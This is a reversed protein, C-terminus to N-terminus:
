ASAHKNGNGYIDLFVDVLSPDFQSGACRRLEAVIDEANKGKRYPRDASMADTTDAITIIRALLPISEGKLGEPYGSGDFHEHHYKIPPLIDMLQRIPSLIETGKAPHMKILEKEEDTLKGPKDLIAEYTGIKGIDHLLGALELNRMERMTLKLARGIDLSFKTVRESHGATWPSKADIANSLSKVTGVLLAELDSLLRANSLAVSIQAALKEIISFHERAYASPRKSGVTLVGVVEGKVNLPIRIHSLFGDQLLKREFPLMPRAENLNSVYQPRLTRAVESASTEGFPIYTSKDAFSIGFGTAYIFGKQHDDLLKVTARDCPVARGLMRVAIELIEDSKLTSLISKDIDHMLKITEIKQSLEMAKEVSEMYMRADRIASSVQYSIGEALKKEKESVEGGEPYLCVIFGVGKDEVCLPMVIVPGSAEELWPAKIGASDATGFSVKNCTLIGDAFEAGLITKETLFRPNQSETLGISAAPIYDDMDKHKIYSLCIKCNLMEGCNSTVTKMLSEVNSPRAITEALTLLHSTINMEDALERTREMVRRELESNLKRIEDEAKKRESIETELERNASELKQKEAKLTEIFSYFNMAYAMMSNILVENALMIKRGASVPDIDKIVAKLAKAHVDLLTDPGKMAIVLAKGLESAEYLPREEAQKLFRKLIDEYDAEINEIEYM